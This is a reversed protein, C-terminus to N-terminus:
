HGLHAPTAYHPDGQWVRALGYQEVRIYDSGERLRHFTVPADTEVRCHDPCDRTVYAMSGPYLAVDTYARCRQCAEVEPDGPNFRNIWVRAPADGPLVRDDVRVTQWHQVRVGKPTRGVVRYYDINTQDYGWSRVYFEAAIADVAAALEAPVEITM